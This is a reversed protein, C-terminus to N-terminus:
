SIVKILAFAGLGIASAAGTAAVWFLKGPLRDVNASMKELQVRIGDLGELMERQLADLSEGTDKM